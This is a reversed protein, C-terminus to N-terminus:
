YVFDYGASEDKSEYFDEEVQLVLDISYGTRKVIDSPYEGAILMQEIEYIAEKMKSM